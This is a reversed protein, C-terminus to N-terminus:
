ENKFCAVMNDSINNIIDLYATKGAPLNTGLDDISGVGIKENKGIAEVVAQSYQPEGFLCKVNKVHAISVIKKLRKAGLGEHSPMSIAGAFNLGFENEFYQYGDHFTIYPSTKYADMKANIEVQKAAILKSYNEANAKYKEANVPDKKALVEAIYTVMKIANSPALWIHPDTPGHEHDHEDPENNLNLNRAPLLNLGDTKILEVITTNTLNKLPKQLFFELDYGVLFIVDSNDLQKIDSPKLSYSHPSNKGNLLLHPETVGDTVASVISHIPKISVTINLAANASLPLLLSLFIATIIKIM